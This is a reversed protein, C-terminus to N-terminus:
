TQDDVEFVEPELFHSDPHSIMGFNVFIQECKKTPDKAWFAFNM